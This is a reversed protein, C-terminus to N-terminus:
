LAETLKDFEATVFPCVRSHRICTYITKQKPSKVIQLAKDPIKQLDCGLSVVGAGFSKAESSKSSDM